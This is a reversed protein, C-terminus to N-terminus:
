DGLWVKDIRKGTWSHVIAFSNYGCFVIVPRAAHIIKGNEIDTYTGPDERWVVPAPGGTPKEIQTMTWRSGVKQAIVLGTTQNKGVRHILALALTLKGDGYFDVSVLGPCANGHDSTYLKRHDEELDATVIKSGSYKRSIERQLDSPVSCADSQPAALM